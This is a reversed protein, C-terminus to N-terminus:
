SCAERGTSPLVVTWRRLGARPVDFPTLWARRRRFRGRDVPQVEVLLSPGLVRTGPGLRAAAPLMGREQWWLRGEGDRELRCPGCRSSRTWVFAQTALVGATVLAALVAGPWEGRIACQLTVFAGALGVLVAASRDAATVAPWDLRLSACPTSSRM